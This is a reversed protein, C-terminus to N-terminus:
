FLSDKNTANDAIYQWKSKWPEIHMASLWLAANKKDPNHRFADLGIAKAKNYDEKRWYCQSEILLAEVVEPVWQADKLYEDIIKISKDYEGYTFYERGLYFMDRLENDKIVSYELTKLVNPQTHGPKQWHDIQMGEAKVLRGDPIITEHCRTYYKSNKRFLKTVPFVMEPSGDPKHFHVFDCVIQDYNKLLKKVNDINWTVREDADPMFVWKYKAKKIADNRNAGQNHIETGVTYAPEWGFREVFKDIDEQTAIEMNRKRRFVKAGMEKAIKVTNDTSGDDSILIEDCGKLNDILDRINHEEDCVMIVASIKM